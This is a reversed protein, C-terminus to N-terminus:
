PLVQKGLLVNEWSQVMKETTFREKVRSQASVSRRRAEDPNALSERIALALIEPDGPAVLWGNTGNEILECIGDVGTAVVPCAAAMAELVANPMGEFRAPHAYLDLAGLLDPLDRRYGAFHVRSELGLKHALERLIAEEEGTGFIILHLDLDRILSLAQLLIDIGKQRTLRGVTGILRGSIPLALRERLLKQSIPHCFTEIDVGNPIVHIRDSQAGEERIAFERGRSSNIV